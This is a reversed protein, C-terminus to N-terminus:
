QLFDLTKIPGVVLTLLDAVDDGTQFWQGAQGDTEIAAVDAKVAKKHLLWAKSVDATLKAPDEFVTAWQEIAQIDDGMGECTSLAQPFQLAALAFLLVAQTINDWGGKECLAIGKKIEDYMTKNGQFCAEIETLDNDGTMGYIFGAVFDPLAMIDIELGSVSAKEIPGLAVSQLDATTMGAQCYQGAAWEAKAASIDGMIKKRHLLLNKTVTAILTSKDEFNKVYAEIDAIEPEAGKCDSLVGPLQATM